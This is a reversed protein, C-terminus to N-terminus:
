ISTEWWCSFELCHYMHSLHISLTCCGFTHKLFSSTNFCVHLGLIGLYSHTTSPQGPLVSTHTHTYLLAYYVCEYMCTTCVCVGTRVCTCYFVNSVRSSGHTVYHLLLVYYNGGVPVYLPFM